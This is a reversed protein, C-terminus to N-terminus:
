FWGRLVCREEDQVTLAVTRCGTVYTAFRPTLELEESASGWARHELGALAVTVSCASHLGLRRRMVARPPLEGSPAPARWGEGRRCECHWGPGERSSRGSEVCEWGWRHTAVCVDKRPKAWETLRPLLQGPSLVWRHGQGSYHVDQGRLWNGALATGVSSTLDCLAASNQSCM